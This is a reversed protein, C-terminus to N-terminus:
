GRVAALGDGRDRAPQVVVDAFRRYQGSARHLRRQQEEIELRRSQVAAGARKRKQDAAPREVGVAREDRTLIQKGSGFVLTREQRRHGRLERAGARQDAEVALAEVRGHELRAVLVM